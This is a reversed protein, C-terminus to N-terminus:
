IDQSQWKDPSGWVTSEQRYNQELGRKEERREQEECKKGKEKKKLYKEKGKKRKESVSCL